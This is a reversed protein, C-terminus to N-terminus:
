QAEQSQEVIKFEYRFIWENKSYPHQPNIFDWQSRFWDTHSNESAILGQKPDGEKRADEETIDQLREPRGSLVEIFYRAAWAPMFLPSRFRSVWEPINMLDGDFLYWIKATHPIESLKLHNYQGETAWAEKIYVTEGPHYLSKVAVIATERSYPKQNDYSFTFRGFGPVSRESHYVWLDPEKNIIDLGSLRRTVTKKGTVIAQIMDPKFLIGKM